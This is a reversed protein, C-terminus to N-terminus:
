MSHSYTTKYNLMLTRHAELACFGLDFLRLTLCVIGFGVSFSLRFIALVSIRFFCCVSGGAVLAFLRVDDVPVGGLSISLEWLGGSWWIGCGWLVIASCSRCGALGGFLVGAFCM